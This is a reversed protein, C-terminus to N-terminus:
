RGGEHLVALVELADHDPWQGTDIAREIEAEPMGCRLMLTVTRDVDRELTRAARLRPRLRLIMEIDFGRAALFWAGTRGYKVMDGSASSEPDPLAADRYAKVMREGAEDVTFHALMQKVDNVAKAGRWEALNLFASVAFRLLEADDVQLAQRKAHLEEREAQLAERQARRAVRDASM